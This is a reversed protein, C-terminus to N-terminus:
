PKFMFLESPPLTQCSVRKHANDGPGKVTVPPVASSWFYAQNEEPLSSSVGAPTPGIQHTDTFPSASSVLERGFERGSSVLKGM